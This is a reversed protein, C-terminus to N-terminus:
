VAPLGCLECMVEHVTELKDARWANSGCFLLANEEDGQAANVLAQTICYPINTRDCRELCHYCRKVAVKGKEAERLFANRIARGPMGVPSKVIVIDEEAADLYAQKYADPADCEQTTVFRTAVQVGDAGLGIQRMVDEHTYIGGATVVPIERGYKDAYKRVLSIIGKIENEYEARKFTKSAHETDAGLSTLEERAFGLHGGALPGEIVM